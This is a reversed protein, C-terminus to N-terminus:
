TMESKGMVTSMLNRRWYSINDLQEKQQVELEFKGNWSVSPKEPDSINTEVTELSDVFNMATAVMKDHEIASYQFMCMFPITPQLPAVSTTEKALSYASDNTWAQKQGTIDGYVEDAAQFDVDRANPKTRTRLKLLRLQALPVELDMEKKFKRLRKEM